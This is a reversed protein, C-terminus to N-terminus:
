ATRDKITVIKPRKAYERAFAEMKGMLLEISEGYMKVYEGDATPTVGDSARVFLPTGLKKELSAINKSVSGQSIGLEKATQLFSGTHCVTLVMQIEKRTIM